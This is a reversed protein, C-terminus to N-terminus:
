KLAKKWLGIRSVTIICHKQPMKSGQLGLPFLLLLSGLYFYHAYLNSESSYDIKYSSRCSLM